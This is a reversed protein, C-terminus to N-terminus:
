RKAARLDDIGIQARQRVGAYGSGVYVEVILDYLARAQEACGKRKAADAVDALGIATALRQSLGLKDNKAVGESLGVARQFATKLNASKCNRAKEAQFAELPEYVIRMMRENAERQMRELERDVAPQSYSPGSILCFTLVLAPWRM